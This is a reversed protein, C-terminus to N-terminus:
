WLLWCVDGYCGACIVMAVCLIAVKNATALQEELKERINELDAVRARTDQPPYGVAPSTIGSSLVGSDPPVDSM